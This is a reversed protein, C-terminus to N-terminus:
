VKIVIWIKYLGVETKIKHDRCNIGYELLREECICEENSLVFVTPCPELTVVIVVRAQGNAHCPGEPYLIVQETDSSTYISYTLTTCENPLTQTNQGLKLKATSKLIAIVATAVEIGGQALAIISVTFNQNRRISISKNLFNHIDNKDCFYM